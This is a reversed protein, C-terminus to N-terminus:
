AVESEVKDVIEEQSIAAPDDSRLYDRVISKLFSSFEEETGTYSFKVQIIPNKKAIPM